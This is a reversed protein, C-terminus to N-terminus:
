YASGPFPAASRGVLPDGSPFSFSRSFQLELFFRCSVVAENVNGWKQVGNKIQQYKKGQGEVKDRGGAYSDVERPGRGLFNNALIFVEAYDYGCCVPEEEVFPGYLHFAQCITESFFCPYISLSLDQNLSILLHGVSCNHPDHVQSAASAKM